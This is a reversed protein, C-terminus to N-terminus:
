RVRWVRAVRSLRVERSTFVDDVFGAAVENLIKFENETNPDDNTVQPAPRLACADAGSHAVRQLARPACSSQTPTSTRRADWKSASRRPAARPRPRTLPAAACARRRLVCTFWKSGIITIINQAGLDRMTSIARAIQVPTRANDVVVAFPQGEDVALMRGPVGRFRELAEKISELPVGVAIGVAVAAALDSVSERGLLCSVIEVKGLPTQFMVKTDWICVEISLPYVDAPPQFDSSLLAALFENQTPPRFERIFGDPGAEDEDEDGEEEPDEEPEPEPESRPELLTPEAKREAKAAKGSRRPFFHAMSSWDEFDASNQQWWDQFQEESEMTEEIYEALDANQEMTEEDPEPMFALEEVVEGIYTVVQAGGISDRIYEAEPDDMNIVARQQEINNQTRFVAAVAERYDRWRRFGSGRAPILPIFEEPLEDPGAGYYGLDFSDNGEEEEAPVDAAEDIGSTGPVAADGGESPETGDSKMLEEVSGTGEVWKARARVGARYRQEDEVAQVAARATAKAAQYEAESFYKDPDDAGEEAAAERAVKRMNEAAEDIAAAADLRRKVEEPPIEQAAAERRAAMIAQADEDEERALGTYVLVDFRTNDAMGLACNLPTLEIAASEAGQAVFGALVRTMEVPRLPKIGPRTYKGKYVSLFYPTTTWRKEEKQLAGALRPIFIEGRRSLRKPKPWKPLILAKNRRMGPKRKTTRVDEKFESPLTPPIPTPGVEFGLPTMLGSVQGTSQMVAQILYSKTTTGMNGCIGICTMSASPDEYFTKTFDVFAARVDKVLLIPGPQQLASWIGHSDEFDQIVVASCEFVQLAIAAVAM